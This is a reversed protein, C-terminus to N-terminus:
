KETVEDAEILDNDTSVTKEEAAAKEQITAFLRDLLTGSDAAASLATSFILILCVALSTLAKFHMKM